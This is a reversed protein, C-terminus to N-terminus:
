WSQGWHANIIAADAIDVNGDNDIDANAGYGLPGEPPGPYWHASIVAADAIDVIHDANVDGPLVLIIRTPSATTAGPMGVCTGWVSYTGLEPPIFKGSTRNYQYLNWQLTQSFNEGPKLTVEWVLHLFYKGDSWRYWKTKTYYSLDFAQSSGFTITVNNKGINTLTLTFDIQQGIPVIDKNVTMTLELDPIIEFDASLGWGQTDRVVYMGPEAPNETFENYQNWTWTESEGPGLGWILFAFIKPWVPELDPYTYMMVCPYGGIEIYADGINKLTAKVEEGVVYVSKDTTIQLLAEANASVVNYTIIMTIILLATLTIGLEAKREL